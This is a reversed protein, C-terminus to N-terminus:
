TGTIRWKKGAPWNRPNDPDVDWKETDRREIRRFREKEDADEVVGLAAEDMRSRTRELSHSGRQREIVTEVHSQSEDMTTRVHKDSM